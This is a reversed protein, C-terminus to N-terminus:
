RYAAGCRRNEEHLSTAAASPSRGHPPAFRRLTAAIATVFVLYCAPLVSSMPPSSLTGSGCASDGIALETSEPGSRRIAGKSEGVPARNGDYVRAVLGVGALQAVDVAKRVGRTGAAARPVVVAPPEHHLAARGLELSLAPM